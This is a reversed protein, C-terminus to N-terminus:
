LYHCLSQTHIDAHVSLTDLAFLVCHFSNSRMLTSPLAPGPVVLSDIRNPNEDPIQRSVGQISIQAMEFTSDTVLEVTATVQNEDFVYIETAWHVLLEKSFLTIFTIKYLTYLVYM